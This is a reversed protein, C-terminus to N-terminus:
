VVALFRHTAAGTIERAVAVAEERSSSYHVLVSVGDQALRKAVASGIGDSAGTVLALKNELPLPM